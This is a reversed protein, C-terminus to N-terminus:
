LQHWWDAPPVRGDRLHWIALRHVRRLWKTIQHTRCQSEVLRAADAGHNRFAWYAEGRARQRQRPSALLLDVLPPM